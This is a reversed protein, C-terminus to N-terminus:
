VEGVIQVQVSNNRSTPKDSFNYKKDNALHLWSMSKLSVPDRTDLQIYRPSPFSLMPEISLSDLWCPGFSCLILYFLM